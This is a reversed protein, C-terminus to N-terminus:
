IQHKLRILQCPFDFLLSDFIQGCIRKKSGRMVVVLHSLFFHSSKLIFLEIQEPPFVVSIKVEVASKSELKVPMPIM